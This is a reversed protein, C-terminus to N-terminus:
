TMLDNKNIGKRKLRQPAQKAGGTFRTCILNDGVM